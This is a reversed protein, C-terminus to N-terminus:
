IATLLASALEEGDAPRTTWGFSFRLCERSAEPSFGMATLVHSPSSAGSQCASGASAAVSGMDLRILVTENRIGPIRVHSHQVLRGDTPANVRAEPIKDLLIEEFRRRAEGVDRRFRKRDAAAVELAVALGVAGAVNHTGSRRGLEQGGGHVVPELPVGERVVLAGVGKPGGFKHASISLLDLGAFRVPESAVAQVADSHFAAGTEAVLDALQQVPQLVGTENNAWMVSVVATDADIAAAVADPDVRGYTDVAVITVPCGIRELFGASELVAEHETAVTVVGGRRGRALAAGKLALNDAETGGGTFVVELPRCGLVAAVRERAEELANKARRSVAHVGSPNGHEEALFPEMAELAEPRMPTTAAHDAYVMGGM